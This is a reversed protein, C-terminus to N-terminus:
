RAAIKLKHILSVTMRATAGWLMEGEFRRFRTVPIVGSPLVHEYIERNAPDALWHLPITFARAVEDAALHLPYPWSIYGVIPTIRYRSTSIHDGLRGIIKVHEPALGIEEHAERLATTELDADGPEPRGGPFAVQGSHYDDRNETRRIFLLRWGDDAELMPVLVAAPRPTPAGLAMPRPNEVIEDARPALRERVQNLMLNVRPYHAKM